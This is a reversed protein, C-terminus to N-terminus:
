KAMNRLITQIMNNASSLMTSGLNSAMELVNMDQQLNMMATINLGTGSTGAGSQLAAQDAQVLQWQKQVAGLFGSTRTGISFVADGAAGAGSTDQM